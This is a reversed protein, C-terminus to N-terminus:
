KVDKSNIIKIKGEKEFRKVFGIINKLNNKNRHTFDHTTLCFVGDNKLNSIINKKITKIPSKSSTGEFAASVHILNLRNRRKIPGIFFYHSNDM